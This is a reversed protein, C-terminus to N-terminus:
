SRKGSTRITSPLRRKKLGITPQWRTKPGKPRVIPMRQIKRSPIVQYDPLADSAAIERLHAIFHKDDQKSGIKKQLLTASIKWAPQKGCHQCALEYLRRDIPRRLCFYDRSIPLVEASSVARFMWDSLKLDLYKLREAM